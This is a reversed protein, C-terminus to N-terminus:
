KKFNKKILQLSAYAAKTQSEYTAGAVHPTIVIQKNKAFDTILRSNLHTNNSEGPLVDLAIRLDPREDIIRILDNLVVIEGRATNIFSANTKLLRLLEFNIMNKTEETLTCCVCVIESTSFIEILTKTPFNTSKVYPDYYYVKADFADCYKAMRSGIRGLGIIGVNKNQLEFGRMFDENDRWRGDKVEDFALDMRRLTNLLLLFSFEASASIKEMEERISLLGYVQINKKECSAINIHNTGTSPTIIMELNPFYDLISDSVTFRQGPNLVWVEINENVELDQQEWIERFQTPLISNFLSKIDNIFNHPASFLCINKM